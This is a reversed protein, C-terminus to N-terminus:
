PDDPLMTIVISSRSGVDVNSSGRQAGDAVVSDLKAPTRGFAVVTHGAKLLNRLMPRGMIGLGVFGITAM